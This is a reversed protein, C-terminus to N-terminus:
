RRALIQKLEQNVKPQVNLTFDWGHADFYDQKPDPTMGSFWDPYKSQDLDNRRSVQLQGDQWLQQGEKGLFWNAFVKAANPNPARDALGLFGFGGTVTEQAEPPVPVKVAPIGQKILESLAQEQLFLAIPYTGRALQDATQRHDRTLFVNQDVFLQKVFDAGLKQYLYVTASAGAGAITPDYAVIKGKYEPKLLDNWSKLDSPKVLTSNVTMMNQTYNNIRYVYQDQPDMFWLKGDRYKTLDTVDPLILEPRLPALMGMVNNTVKGRDAIVEYMSNAGAIVVDVSYVGASRETMLRPGFSAEGTYELTLGYRAKVAPPLSERLAPTPPGVVIVKGESKAASVLADWRQTNAAPATTPKAAPAASPAAAVAPAATPNAAPAATPASTAPAAATPKAAPAATPSPAAVPQQCAALLAAGGGLVIGSLLRRRTVTGTFTQEQEM